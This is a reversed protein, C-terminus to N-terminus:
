PTTGRTPGARDPRRSTPHSTKGSRAKLPHGTPHMACRAASEPDPRRCEHRTGPGATRGLGGEATGDDPDDDSEDAMQDFLETNLRALLEAIFEFYGDGDLEQAADSLVSHVRALYDRYDGM